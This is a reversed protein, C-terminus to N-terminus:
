KKLIVQSRRAVRLIASRARPNIAIEQDSARRMPDVQDLLSASLENNKIMAWRPLHDSERHFRMFRKVIRDELSHFSIVVLKGGCRLRNITKPLVKTLANLEDNIYIRIAQFTRTAPHQGVEYTKVQQKVLMALEGTTTIPVLARAKVIAKSINRAFREEGYERIVREIELSTAQNLWAAATLTATTDMRMDLPADFRFSFGRKADDLQPSSVGLDFIAGDIERIAMRDLATDFNSFDSHVMCFRKDKKALALGIAVAELDKDFAILRGKQNLQNLIAKSHGGCGFTQDVYVGEKRTILATVSENCLVSQHSMTSSM